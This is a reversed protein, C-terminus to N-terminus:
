RVYDYSGGTNLIKIHNKFKELFINRVFDSCGLNEFKYLDGPDKVGNMPKFLELTLKLKILNKVSNRVGEVGYKDFDPILLFKRALLSAFYCMAGSASSTLYAIIFPYKTYYSLVEADYVGEVLVVPTNINFKDQNDEFAQTVYFCPKHKKYIFFQKRDLDRVLFGFVKCDFGLYTFAYVGSLDISGNMSFYTIAETSQGLDTEVGAKGHLLRVKQVPNNKFFSGWKNIDANLKSFPDITFHM